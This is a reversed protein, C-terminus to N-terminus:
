FDDSILEVPESELKKMGLIRFTLYSKGKISFVGICSFKLKIKMERKDLIEDWQKDSLSGKDTKLYMWGRSVPSKAGHDEAM